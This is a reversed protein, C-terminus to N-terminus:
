SRDYLLTKLVLRKKEQVIEGSDAPEGTFESYFATLLRKM